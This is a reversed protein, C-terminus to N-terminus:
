GLFLQMFVTLVPRVIYGWVGTAILLLVILIGFREL